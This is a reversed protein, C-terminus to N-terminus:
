RKTALRGRALVGIAACLLFVALPGSAPIPPVPAAFPSELAGIDIRGIRRPGGDLDTTFAPDLADDRGADIAPSAATLHFDGGVASPNVFAANGVRTGPGPVLEDGIASVFNHDNSVLTLAPDIGIDRLSNLAVLNNAITAEISAGLDVRASILIGLRGLVVTNNVIAGRLKANNGDASAVIGAPAGTNGNQGIILNNVIQGDFTFTPDGVNAGFHRWVIGFDFDHGFILNREILVRGGGAAGVVAEIGGCQSLDSLSIRNGSITADLTTPGTTVASIGSVCSFAGGTVTIVNGTAILTATGYVGAIFNTDITIASSSNGAAFTNDQVRLVLSGGGPAVIGRVGGGGAMGRVTVDKSVNTVATFFFQVQPTFGAAAQITLSKDIDVSEAIPTNTAIDITDGAAAATVCAQLTTNCPAAGPYTLAYASAAGFVLTAALAAQMAGAHRLAM